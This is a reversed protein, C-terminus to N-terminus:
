SFRLPRRLSNQPFAADTFEGDSTGLTVAEIDGIVTLRPTAYSKKESRKEPQMDM